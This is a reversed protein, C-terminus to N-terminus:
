AQVFHLLDKWFAFCVAPLLNIGTGTKPVVLVRCIREVVTKDSSDFGEVRAAYVGPANWEEYIDPHWDELDVTFKEERGGKDFTTKRGSM